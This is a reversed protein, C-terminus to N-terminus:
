KNLYKKFGGLLIGLHKIKIILVDFDKQFLYSLKLSIILLNETENLSGIAIDIFRSFEKRTTRGSGEAINSSISIVARRIQSVIGFIEDKPFKKTVSYILIAIELSEQWIKLNEYSKAM